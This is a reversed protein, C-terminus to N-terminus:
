ELSRGQSLKDLEPVLDEITWKRVFPRNAATVPETNPHLDEAPIDALRPVVHLKGNMLPWHGPFTCVYPYEGTKRPAVFTLRTTQGPQLLTTAHLIKSNKPIFNRAFADPEAAMREAALGIEVLSGPRGIVLNHPMIDTNEIVLVV